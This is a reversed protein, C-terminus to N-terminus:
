IITKTGGCQVIANGGSQTRVTAAPKTQNAIRPANVTSKTGAFTYLLTEVYRGQSQIDSSEDISGRQSGSRKCISEISGKM